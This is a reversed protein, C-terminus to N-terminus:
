SWNSTVPGTLYRLFSLVISCVYVSRDKLFKMKPQPASIRPSVDLGFQRKGEPSASCNARETSQKKNAEKINGYGKAIKLRGQRERNGEEKRFGPM